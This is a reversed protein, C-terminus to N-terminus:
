QRSVIRRHFRYICDDMVVPIGAAEALQAAARHYVHDQMWILRLRPLQLAEEVIPLVQDSRRFINVIEISDPAATLRAYCPTGFLEDHGPNIPIVEYGQEMLYRSIWHSPRMTNPSAGVVAVTHSTQLIGTLNGSDSGGTPRM